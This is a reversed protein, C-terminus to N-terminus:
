RGRGGRAPAMLVAYLLLAAALGVAWGYDALPRLFPILGDAPFPGKGPASHSGGVALVGGVVFAAVARLNWGGTYWYRGEPLYLEALELVTRRVIWYDAILIGAVTGLLGGVVGLWTFIYLEPTATLKWPMILVGVVGTILAGTRFNIRKPALNALDYAPSVVNAALNVSLTAILVTVLAFLLGFVNDTKAALAVPDWVPAGYVAQSGSTVFVSLLAFLTMTTPLGLSQGRIQARQGAAFRTFDPINLSLTSWFAIMGMLSPFFVPWFDAGWGLKSPQDLLPWVGGAKVTIWGLLVLAGVIVFPAAWNEFRRLTEMGRHIIALELAWFLLFCLWLTWPQGGIESVEAWGGFIKGLLVFIGQGGIWTQIGFWACAVGARILAPLNAGRLGFSARALVPFPIGYKPGAHGTLLMPALVILNALAITVVAQLWDMGLAVLGSALLWSPINHAMGIWLAAFNYTTWRRRAVPVPLLDDNVYRSEPPVAGPALEVRAGRAPDSTPSGPATATM